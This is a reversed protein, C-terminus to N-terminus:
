GHLHELHTSARGCGCGTATLQAMRTTKLPVPDYGQGGWPHCRLLRTLGLFLGKGVGHQELALIAYESCTPSFRCCPGTVGFFGKLPSLWIRYGKILVILLSEVM